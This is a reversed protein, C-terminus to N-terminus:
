AVRARIMATARVPIGVYRLANEVEEVSRCLVYWCKAMHFAHEVERQADSQSGGKGPRKLEIGLVRHGQEDHHIILLDPWGAKVGRAKRRRAAIINMAGQGADLATWMTPPMLISRLHKAVRVQLDHEPSARRKM